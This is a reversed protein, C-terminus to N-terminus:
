DTPGWPSGEGPASERSVSRSHYLALATTWALTGVIVSGGLWARDVTDDLLSSRELGTLVLLLVLLQLVYTLLAVLLSLAPSVRAVAATLVMGFGFVVLTLAVGALAGTAGAAGDVLGGLGVAAVAM